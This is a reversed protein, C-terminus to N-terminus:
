IQMVNEYLTYPPIVITVVKARVSTCSIYIDYRRVFVIDTQPTTEESIKPVM